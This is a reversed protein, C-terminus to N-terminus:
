PLSKLRLTITTNVNPGTVEQRLRVIGINPAFWTTSVSKTLVAKGGIVLPAGTKTKAAYTTVGEVAVAGMPKVDTDIEQIGLVTSKVTMAGVGGTPFPGVGKYDFTQGEKWPCPLVLQAPQFDLTSGQASSYYTQFVGKPNVMWGMTDGGGSQGLKSVQMVATTNEGSRKVRVVEIAWESQAAGAEGQRETTVAYVWRAGEKLPFLSAMDDNKVTVPEVKPQQQPRYGSAGICGSISLAAFAAALWKLAHRM